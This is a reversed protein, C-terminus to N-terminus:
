IQPQYRGAGGGTPTIEETTSHYHFHYFLGTTETCWTSLTTCIFRRLSHIHTHCDFTIRQRQALLAFETCAAGGLRIRIDGARTGGSTTTLSRLAITAALSVHLYAHTTSIRFNKKARLSIGRIDGAARSAFRM